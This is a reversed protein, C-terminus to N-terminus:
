ELSWGFGLAIFWRARIGPLPRSTVGVRPVDAAGGLGAQNPCFAMWRSRFPFNVSHHTPSTASFQRAEQSLFPSPVLVPVYPCASAPTKAPHRAPPGRVAGAEYEKSSGTPFVLFFSFFNDTATSEKEELPPDTKRSPGEELLVGLQLQSQQLVRLLVRAPQRRSEEQLHLM